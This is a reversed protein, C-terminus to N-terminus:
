GPFCKADIYVFDLTGDEFARSAEVSCERVIHSRSGFRSLLAAVGQYKRDMAEQPDNAADEYVVKEFHKWPDVSHLVRLESRELIIESYGGSCVGIEVGEGKLGLMTLLRPLDDRADVPISVPMPVGFHYYARVAVSRYLGKLGTFLGPFYNRGGSRLLKLATNGVAM